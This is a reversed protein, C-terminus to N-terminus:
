DVLFREIRRSVPQLGAYLAAGALVMLILSLIAAYYNGGAGFLGFLTPGLNQHTLIVLSPYFANCIWVVLLAGGARLANRLVSRRQERLPTEWWRQMRFAASGTAATALLFLFTSVQLPSLNPLGVGSFGAVLSPFPYFFEPRGHLWVLLVAALATDLALKEGYLLIARDPGSPTPSGGAGLLYRRFIIVVLVTNLITFPFAPPRYHFLWFSWLFQGLGTPLRPIVLVVFLLLLWGAWVVVRPNRWFALPGPPTIVPPALPSINEKIERLRQQLSVHLQFLSRDRRTARMEANVLEIQRQLAFQESLRAYDNFKGRLLRELLSQWETLLRASPPAVGTARDTWQAEYVALAVLAFLALWATWRGHFSVTAFIALLGQPPVILTATETVVFLFIVGTIIWVQKAQRMFRQSAVFALAVLATWYGYGAVSFNPGAFQWPPFLMLNKFPERAVAAALVATSLDFGFGLVFGALFGDAVSLARVRLVRLLPLLLIAQRALCVWFAVWPGTENYPAFLKQTLPSIVTGLLVGAVLYTLLTRESLTARACAVRIVLLTWVALLLLSLLAM